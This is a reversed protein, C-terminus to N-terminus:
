HDADRESRPAALRKTRPPAELRQTRPPTELEHLLRMVSTMVFALQVWAAGVKRLTDDFETQVTAQDAIVRDVVAGARDIARLTRRLTVVLRHVEPHHHTTERELRMGARHRRQREQASMPRDFLPKRGM